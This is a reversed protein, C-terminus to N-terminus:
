AVARKGPWTSRIMGYSRQGAKSSAKSSSTGTMPTRSVLFEQKTRDEFPNVDGADHPAAICVDGGMRIGTGSHYGANLRPPLRRWLTSPDNEMVGFAIYGYGAVDPKVSPHKVRSESSSFEICEFRSIVYPMVHMCESVTSLLLLEGSAFPRKTFCLNNYSGGTTRAQTRDASM